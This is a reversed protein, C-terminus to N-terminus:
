ASEGRIVPLARLTRTDWSVIHGHNPERKTQHERKGTGTVFWHSVQASSPVQRNTIMGHDARSVNEPSIVKRQHSQVTWVLKKRLLYNL